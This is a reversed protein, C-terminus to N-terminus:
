CSSYHELEVFGVVNRSRRFKIILDTLEAIEARSGLLGKEAQVSDRRAILPFILLDLEGENLRIGM